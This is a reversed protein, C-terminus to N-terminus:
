VNGGWSLVLKDNLIKTKIEDKKLFKALEGWLGKEVMNDIKRCQVKKNQERIYISGDEEIEMFRHGQSCVENITENIISFACADYWAKVDDESLKEIEKNEKEKFDVVKLMKINIEGSPLFSVDAMNFEGTNETNIQANQINGNASVLNSAWNWTVKPYVKRLKETIRFNVNRIFFDQTNRFLMTDKSDETFEIDDEFEQEEAECKAEAIKEKISMKVEAIKVKAKELLPMVKPKILLCSNVILWVAACGMMLFDRLTDKFFVALIILVKVLNRFKFIKKM